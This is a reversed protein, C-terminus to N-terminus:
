RTGGGGRGRHVAYAHNGLAVVWDYPLEIIRESYPETVDPWDSYTYMPEDDGEYISDRVYFVGKSRCGGLDEMHDEVADAYDSRDQRRFYAISQEVIACGGTEVEDDYGVVLNAHWYLFHNYVIVVPARHTRLEHQIRAVHDWGMLAVGWPSEGPDRFVLTREMDPTPVLQDEWDSPLDDFWNYACSLYAGPTTATARALGTGTDVVYGATFPYDRSLMSGGWWDYGYVIDTLPYPVVAGPTADIANMPFRESLDTDGLYEVSDPDAHQALLIEATGTGVM